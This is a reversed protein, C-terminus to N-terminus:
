VRGQQGEAHLRVRRVALLVSRGLVELLAMLVLGDAWATFDTIGLRQSTRVITLGGGHEAWLGFAVRAGVGVIWLVVAPGTSRLMVRGSDQWVRSCLACSLGLCLGVSALVVVATRNAEGAPIRTLYAAVAWGVLALPWALGLWTLPRGRIQRVISLILLGSILYDALTMYM